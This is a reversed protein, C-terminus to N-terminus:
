PSDCTGTPPTWGCVAAGTYVADFASAPINAIEGFLSPPFPENTASIFWASGQDALIMGYHKLARVIVQANPSFSAENFDARLRMRLGYPPLAADKNPGLHNAPPIYAEQVKPTTFRLAHRIEGAALEDLRVLGPFIPLGAADASTWGAPRTSNTTLDWKAASSCEFGGPVRVANYLEFLTCTGQQLAIVHRDGGAPDLALVNGEIPADLPIPFPGPDSEMSFDFGDTGFLIPVGPQNAPVVVFPMGIGQTGDTEADLHLHGPIGMSSLYTGSLPHVPAASIDSNWPNDAPFIPCGLSAITPPQDPAPPSGTDAGSGADAGSAGNTGNCVYSTSEIEGIDLTGDGNGDVGVEVQIGGAPCHGADAPTVVVRSV